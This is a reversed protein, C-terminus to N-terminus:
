HNLGDIGPSLLRADFVPGECCIRRNYYPGEVAKRVPAVCGFCIGFGCAMLAELCIECRLGRELALARLADNM